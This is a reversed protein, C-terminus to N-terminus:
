ATAINFLNASRVVSIRKLCCPQRFRMASGFDRYLTELARLDDEDFRHADVTNRIGEAQIQAAVQAEGVELRAESGATIGRRSERSIQGYGHQAPLPVNRHSFLLMYQM